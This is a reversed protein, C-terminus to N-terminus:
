DARLHAPGLSCTPWSGPCKESWKVKVKSKSKVALRLEWWLWKFTEWQSKRMIHYSIQVSHLLASIYNILHKIQFLAVILVSAPRIEACHSRLTFHGSIHRPQIERITHQSSSTHQQHRLKPQSWKRGIRRTNAPAQHRTKTMVGPRINWWSM